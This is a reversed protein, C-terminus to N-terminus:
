GIGHTKEVHKYTDESWVKRNSTTILYTNEEALGEIEDTEVCIKSYGKLNKTQNKFTVNISGNLCTMCGIYFRQKLDFYGGKPIYFFVVSEDPDDLNKIKKYKIADDDECNDWETFFRIIVGDDIEHVNPLKQLIAEKRENILGHVKKLLYKKEDEM